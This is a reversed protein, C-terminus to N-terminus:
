EIVEECEDHLTERNYLERPINDTKELTVYWQITVVPNRWSINPFYEVNVVEGKTGTERHTWETGLM